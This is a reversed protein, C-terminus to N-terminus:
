PWRMWAKRMERRPEDSKQTSRGRVKGWSLASPTMVAAPWGAAGTSAEGLDQADAGRGDRGEDVFEDIVAVDAAVFVQDISANQAHASRWGTQRQEFFQVGGLEVLERVHDLADIGAM